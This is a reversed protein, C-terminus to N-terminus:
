GLYRDRLEAVWGGAGEAELASIFAELTWSGFTSSDALCAQYKQIAASAPANEAPYLVVFMGEKWGDALLMSGALMHDRWLQNIPKMRLDALRSPHFCGMDQAVHDYRERHPALADNMDEHYKVEIGLFGKKGGIGEYEVYVDFASRDATYKPDRRGPSHEFEIRHVTAVKDPVLRRMVRSALALDHKLEGFLNFCLPQSSLLDDFIRPQAFLKGDGRGADLVEARFVERIGDTLYNWLRDKADPMQLRTGLPQGRHLGVPYGQKERWMAQRLRVTRQFPNDSKVFAHHSRLLDDPPSATMVVM